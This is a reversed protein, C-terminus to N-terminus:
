VVSKRDSSVVQPGTSPGVVFTVGPDMLALQTTVVSELTGHAAFAEQAAGLAQEAADKASADAVAAGVTLASAATLPASGSGETAHITAFSSRESMVVWRAFTGISFVVVGAIVALKLARPDVRRRRETTHFGFTDM